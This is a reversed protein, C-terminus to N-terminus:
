LFLKMETKAELLLNATWRVQSPKNEKILRFITQNFRIKLRLHLDQITLNHIIADHLSHRVIDVLFANAHVIDEEQMDGKPHRYANNESERRGIVEGWETTLDGFGIGNLKQSTFFEASRCSLSFVDKGKLLHSNAGEILLESAQDENRAGM